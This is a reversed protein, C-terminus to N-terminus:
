EEYIWGQLFVYEDFQCESETSAFELTIGATLSELDGPFALLEDVLLGRSDRPYFSMVYNYIAANPTSTGSVLYGGEAGEAIVANVTPADTPESLPNLPPLSTMNFQLTTAAEIMDASIDNQIGTLIGTEGPRLCGHTTTFDEQRHPPTQSLVIIELGDLRTDFLFSCHDELGINMVEAYLDLTDIGSAAIYPLITVSLLEFDEHGIDISLNPHSTLIGQANKAPEPGCPAAVNGTGGGTTGSVDGTSAGTMGTTANSGGTSITGTTGTTGTTGGTGSTTTEDGVTTAGTGTASATSTGDDHTGGSGGSSGSAGDTDINGTTSEKSGSGNDGGGCAILAGCLGTTGLVRTLM